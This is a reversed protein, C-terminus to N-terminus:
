SANVKDTWGVCQFTTGAANSWAYVSTSELVVAPCRATAYLSSGLSCFLPQTGPAVPSGYSPNPALGWATATISMVSIHVASATTPVCAGNGSVLWATYASASTSFVFPFTATNTAAVIQYQANYGRQVTRYFAPVSDTQLAGVRVKFKYGAPMTPATASLSALCATATGNSILYAHYWVSAAMTGTDLGNAGTTLLNATCSVVTARIAGGATSVMVVEDATVAIQSAPTAGNTVVLGVAGSLATPKPTAALSTYQVVQWNGSGLYLAIATDGAVAQVNVGGPLIFSTANYTLLPAGTFIIHYIPFNFQATSGFSTITVSGSVVATHSGVTGLDTTAASAITTATGFGNSDNTILEYQTGDYYVLATQGITIEGGILAVLGSSTQKYVNTAATSGVALTTAGTNTASAQFSVLNGQTLAYGAVSPVTTALTIANATGGATGATYYQSGGQAATIPTTLGTLATISANVGNKAANTNINTNLCTFNANMQSSAITTGPTFTYTPCTTVIADAKAPACVFLLLLAALARFARRYSM